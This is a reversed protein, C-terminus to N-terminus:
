KRQKKLLQLNNTKKCDEEEEWNKQYVCGLLLPLQPVLPHHRVPLEQHSAALLPIFAWFGAKSLLTM